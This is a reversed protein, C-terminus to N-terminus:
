KYIYITDAKNTESDIIIQTKYKGELYNHIIKNDNNIIFFTIFGLSLLIISFSVLIVINKWYEYKYKEIAKATADVLYLCFIIILIILGVM